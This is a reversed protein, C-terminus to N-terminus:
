PTAPWIPAPLALTLWGALAALCAALGARSAGLMRGLLGAIIAAVPPRWLPTLLIRLSLHYVRALLAHMCGPM